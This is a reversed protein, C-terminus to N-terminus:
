HQLASWCRRTASEKSSASATAQVALPPASRSRHQASTRTSLTTGQFRWVVQPDCRYDGARAAQRESQQPRSHRASCARTVGVMNARTAARTLRAQAIFSESTADPATSVFSIHCIWSSASASSAGCHEM